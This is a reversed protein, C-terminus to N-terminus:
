MTLTLPISAAEALVVGSQVDEARIRITSHNKAETIMLTIANPKEPELTISRTSEEFGYAAMAVQGVSTKSQTLSIAVKIPEPSFLEEGKLTLTISFFRNTVEKRPMELTVSGTGKGGKRDKATSSVTMVPLIVEQPSLGGHMYAYASGKAKFVAAGQPFVVEGEGGLGVHSFPLRWAAELQKGGRGIWCRPHQLWTDGGPSDMKMGSDTEELHLFGHDAAVVVTDFGCGLIRRVAAQLRELVSGMYLRTEDGEEAGEGLRDIEQSTVCLFRAEQLKKRLARGASAVEALKLILCGTDHEKLLLALRTERDKILEHSVAPTVKKGAPSLSLDKEAGPMLAAMGIPTIGPTQGAVPTLDVAFESGLSQALEAAMEYRLADVLLYAVRKGSAALPSVREAYTSRQEAVPTDHHLNRVYAEGFAKASDDVYHAYIRRCITLISELAEIGVPNTAQLVDWTVESKRQLQDILMLPRSFEAYAQLWGALDPKQKKLYSEAENVRECLDASEELFRWSLGTEPDNLSWFLQRRRAALKRAQGYENTQFCKVGREIWVKDQQQFTEASESVPWDHELLGLEQSVAGAAALYDERLDLRQRWTRCVHLILDRQAESGEVRLPAIGQPLDGGTTEALETVLFRRRLDARLAESEAAEEAPYGFEQELLHRLEKWAKKGALKRDFADSAMFLLAVETPSAQGFILKLGGSALQNVEGAMKDLESLSLLGESVQRGIHEAKEPAVKQFVREALVQLRTNRELDAAGPELLCGAAEAEILAADTETRHRPVYILLRPPINCDARIAGDAEIFELLPEIQHRTALLSEGVRVVKVNESQWDSIFSEYHRAGDYWVVIGHEDIQRHILKRLFQSVLNM